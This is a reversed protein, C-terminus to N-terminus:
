MPVTLDGIANTWFELSGDQIEILDNSKVLQEVSRQYWLDLTIRTMALGALTPIGLYNAVCCLELLQKEAVNEIYDLQWPALYLKRYNWTYGFYYVKPRTDNSDPSAQKKESFERRYANCWKILARITKDNCALDPREVIALYRRILKLVKTSARLTLVREGTTEIMGKLMRAQCAQGVTLKVVSEENRLEFQEESDEGVENRILPTYNTFDFGQALAYTLRLLHPDHYPSARKLLANFVNLHKVVASLRAAVMWDEFQKSRESADPANRDVTWWTVAREHQGVPEITGLGIDPEYFYNYRDPVYDAKYGPYLQNDSDFHKHAFDPISEFMTDIHICKEHLGWDLHLFPWEAFIASIITRRVEEPNM